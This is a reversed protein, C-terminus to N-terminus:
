GLPSAVVASGAAVSVQCREAPLDSGEGLLKEAPDFFTLPPYAFKDSSDAVGAM